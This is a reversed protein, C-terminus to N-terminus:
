IHRKISDRMVDVNSLNQELAVYFIEEAQADGPGTRERFRRYIRQIGSMSEVIILLTIYM